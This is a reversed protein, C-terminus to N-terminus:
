VKFKDVQTKLETAHKALEAAANHSSEASATTGEAIQAVETIATAISASGTAAESIHRTIESTTVSQEEVAGAIANQIDAIKTIIKEIRAIADVANDIDSQISTVRQSIDDTARSTERSLEKVEGAVVAFGKGAEGARAAEITANLALLNTQEAISNIMRTIHAIGTSSEDLKLMTDNTQSVERVAESAVQAANVAQQSIEKISSSMQEVSAAISQTNATVKESAESALVSQQASDLSGAHLQTSLAALSDSAAALRGSSDTITGINSKLNDITDNLASGLRAVEDKGDTANVRQSLDGSAVAEIVRLSDSLQESLHNSFIFGFVALVILALIGLSRAQVIPQEHIAQENSVATDLADRLQTNIRSLQEDVVYMSKLMADAHPAIDDANADRLALYELEVVGVVSRLQAIESEGLSTDGAYTYVITLQEMFAGWTLSLQARVTNDGTDKLRLLEPQLQALLIERASANATVAHSTNRANTVANQLDLISNTVLIIQLGLIAIAVSFGAFLKVRISM